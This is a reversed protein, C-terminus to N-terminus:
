AAFVPAVPYKPEAPLCDGGPKTGGDGKPPYVAPAPVYPLYGGSDGSKYTHAHSPCVHVDPIRLQEESIKIKM